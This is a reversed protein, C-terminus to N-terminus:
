NINWLKNMWILSLLLILFSDFEEFIPSFLKHVKNVLTRLYLVLSVICLLFFIIIFPVEGFNFVKARSFISNFSHFSLNCVWLCWICSKQLISIWFIYNFGVVWFYSFLGTFLHSFFMVNVLPLSAGPFISLMM